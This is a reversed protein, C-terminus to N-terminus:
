ISSEKIFILSRGTVAKCTYSQDRLFTFIKSREPHDINFFDDEIVIVRPKYSNWDNSVLVELGLGEVDINLLDIEKQVLHRRFIERLPLCLVKETRIFRFKPGKKEMLQKQELSFTSCSTRASVYYPLEGRQNSVGVRLNIDKKRYKNFLAFGNVDPEINIGRWGKKHLLYTNSYRWPHYAGVDVYFGDTKEPFIRNILIDEGFQSYFIREFRQASKSDLHLHQLIHKAISPIHINM